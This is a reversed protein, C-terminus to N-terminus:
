GRIAKDGHLNADTLRLVNGGQKGRLAKFVSPNVGIQCADM